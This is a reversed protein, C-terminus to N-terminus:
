FVRGRKLVPGGANAVRLFLFPSYAVLFLYTFAGEDINMEEDSM